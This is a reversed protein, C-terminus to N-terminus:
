LSAGTFDGAAVDAQLGQQVAQLDNVYRGASGTGQGGEEVVNQWLGGVLARTADNFTAGLQAFDAANASSTPTPPPCPDTSGQSPAAGGDDGNSTDGGAGNGAGNSSGSHNSGHNGHHHHRAM